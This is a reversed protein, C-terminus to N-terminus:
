RDEDLIDAAINTVKWLLSWFLAPILSGYAITGFIISLAIKFIKWVTIHCFSPKLEDLLLVSRALTFFCGLDYILNIFSFSFYHMKSGPIVALIQPLVLANDSETSLDRTLSIYVACSSLLVTNAVTHIVLFLGSRMAQQQPEQDHQHVQGRAPGGVPRRTLEMAAPNGEDGDVGENPFVEATYTGPDNGWLPQHPCQYFYPDNNYGAPILTSSLGFVLSRIIDQGCIKFTVVNAAFYTVLVILGGIWESRNDLTEKLFVSLTFGRAAVSAAFMPFCLAWKVILSTQRENFQLGFYVLAGFSTVM